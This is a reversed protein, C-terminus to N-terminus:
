LVPPAAHRVQRPAGGILEQTLAGPATVLVRLSALIKATASAPIRPTAEHFVEHMGLHGSAAKQGCAHCFEGRLEEGCNLCEHGSAVKSM